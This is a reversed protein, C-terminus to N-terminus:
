KDYSPVQFTFLHGGVCDPIRGYSFRHHRLKLLANMLKFKLSRRGVEIIKWQAHVSEADLVHDPADLFRDALFMFLDAYRGSKRWVCQPDPDEAFRELQAM